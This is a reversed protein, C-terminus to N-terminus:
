LSHLPPITITRKPEQRTATQQSVNSDQVGEQRARKEAQLQTKRAQWIDLAECDELESAPLWKDGEPGEGRWRVLYQMQRARQPFLRDDNEKFPHVESMHFVPFLDPANPMHLTVTSHTVHDNIRFPFLPRHDKNAQHAQKLKAMLLNEQAELEIHEMREVVERAQPTEETDEEITLLPPLLRPSKGFRLQFPTSRATSANITNM